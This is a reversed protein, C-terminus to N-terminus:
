SEMKGSFAEHLTSQKLAKLDASQKAQLDRLARVKKSLADLKQVIKKQETLPPLPIIIKKLEKVAAINKIAMGKEHSRNQALYDRLAYLMFKTDIKHSPTIKLLAQNIVGKAFYKPVVALKGITGSCSMLVDGSAVQFRSMSEFKGPTIFYRFHELDNDIVNRQEYVSFGSPVFIEKKLSGGFPGRVLVAVDGITAAPFDKKANSFIEHLAAPLLAATREENAARLRAAEDIKAFQNEIQEVIKKQEEIPPLPIELNQIKTKSLTAGKVAKHAADFHLQQLFYFLYKKDLEKEDKIPLGAIAENTYLDIGAFALKGISLKFSFLLTGQKLLKVNSEQAGFKTIKEKTKIIEHGGRTLDAISVWPLDGGLWYRSVGRRPTGGIIVGCVEGLKKIPYNNM